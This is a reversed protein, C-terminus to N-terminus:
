VLLMSDGFLDFRYRKRVLEQYAKLTHEKGAYAAVLMLHSSRPEHLNTLMADVMKYDHGPYIFLDTWGTGARVRTGVRSEYAVTELTRVVSTGVAIVRNGTRRAHNIQRAAEQKVHYWESGVQHSEVRGKIIHRYPYLETLGIHLTIAVISVGSQAIKDLLDQTFHLGASPMELSGPVRSYVNRYTDMRDRLPKYLPMNRNGLRALLEHFDGDHEFRVLWLDEVTRKVLTARMEDDGFRIVLGRAAKSRPQVLGHWGDPHHGFLLLRVPGKSTRGKLEDHVMMTDNIVLVDGRRLYSKLQDFRKHELRGTKRHLVAMRAHDRREGRLEPPTLPILREPVRFQFDATRISEEVVM